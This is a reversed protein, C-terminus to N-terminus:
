VRRVEEQNQSGGQRVWVGKWKKKIYIGFVLNEQTIELMCEKPYGKSQNENSHLNIQSSNINRCHQNM